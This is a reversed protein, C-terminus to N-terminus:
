AIQKGCNNCIKSGNSGSINFHDCSDDKIKDVVEEIQIMYMDTIMYLEKLDDLQIISNERLSNIDYKVHEIINYVRQYFLEVIANRNKAESQMENIDDQLMTKTLGMTDNREIM